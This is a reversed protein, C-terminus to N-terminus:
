TVWSNFCEELMHLEKGDWQWLHDQGNGASRGWLEGVCHLRFQDPVVKPFKALARELVDPEAVRTFRSWIHFHWAHEPDPNNEIWAQFEDDYLFKFNRPPQLFVEQAAVLGPMDSTFIVRWPEATKFAFKLIRREGIIEQYRHEWWRIIGGGIVRCQWEQEPTLDKRDVIPRAERCGWQHNSLSQCWEKPPDSVKTQELERIRAKLQIHEEDFAAIKAELDSVTQAVYKEDDLPESDWTAQKGRRYNIQTEMWKVSVVLQEKELRLQCSNLQPHAQKLSVLQREVKGLEEASAASQINERLRWHQELDKHVEALVHLKSSLYGSLMGFYM